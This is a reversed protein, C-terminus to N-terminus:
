NDLCVELGQLGAGPPRPVFPCNREKRSEGQMPLGLLDAGNHSTSPEMQAGLTEPAYPAPQHVLLAAGGPSPPGGLRGQKREGSGRDHLRNVACGSAKAQGPSLFCWQDAHKDGEWPRRLVGSAAGGVWQSCLQPQPSTPRPCQGLCSGPRNRGAQARWGEEVSWSAGWPMGPARLDRTPECSPLPAFISAEHTLNSVASLSLGRWCQAVQSLSPAMPGTPPGTSLQPSVRLAGEELLSLPALCCYLSSCAWLLGRWGQVRGLRTSGPRTVHGGQGAAPSAAAAGWGLALPGACPGQM